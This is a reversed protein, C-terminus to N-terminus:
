RKFCRFVLHGEKGCLQCFVGAKFTPHPGSRAGREGRTFNGRGGGNRGGGHSGNNNGGRGGKAISNASSEHNGGHKIEYRQEFSILQTYLEGVLIPEVKATITSVVLDFELDLRILIHAILEDDELRKGVSAMDDALGKMKTFYESITSTGKSATQLRWGRLLSTRM